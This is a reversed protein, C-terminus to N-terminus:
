ARRRRLALGAVGLILLLGSTPEPVAVSQWGTIATTTKDATNSGFQTTGMAQATQASSKYQMKGVDAIYYDKDDQTMTYILAAYAYGSSKSKNDSLSMKGDKSEGTYTITGFTDKYTDYISKEMAAFGDTSYTLRFGDYTDKDLVILYGKVSGNGVLTETFAGGEGATYLTGSAWAVTAAKVSGVMAFAVAIVMLKKM